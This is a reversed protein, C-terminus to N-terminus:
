PNEVMPKQRLVGGIMLFAILCYFIARTKGNNATKNLIATPGTPEESNKDKLYHDFITGFLVGFCYIGIWYWPQMYVKNYFELDMMFLKNPDSSDGTPIIQIPLAGINL